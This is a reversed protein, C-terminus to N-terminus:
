KAPNAVSADVSFPTPEPVRQCGISQIAVIASPSVDSGNETLGANMAGFGFQAMLIWHGDHINQDRLMLLLLDRHKYQFQTAEAM